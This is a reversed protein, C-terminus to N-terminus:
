QKSLEKIMIPCEIANNPYSCVLECNICRLKVQGFGVAHYIEKSLIKQRKRRPVRSLRLLLKKLKTSDVVPYCHFISHETLPIVLGAFDEKQQKSLQSIRAKRINELDKALVECSKIAQLHLAALENINKDLLKKMVCKRSDGYHTCVGDKRLDVCMPKFGIRFLKKTLGKIDLILATAGEYLSKFDIKAYCRLKLHKAEDWGFITLSGEMEVPPPDKHYAVCAFTTYSPNASIVPLGFHIQDIPATQAFYADHTNPYDFFSKLVKSLEQESSFDQVQRLLFAKLDHITVPKDPGRVKYGVYKGFEKPKFLVCLKVNRRRPHWAFLVDEHEERGTLHQLFRIEYGEERVRTVWQEAIYGAKKKACVRAAESLFRPAVYFHKRQGTRVKKPKSIIARKKESSFERIVKSLTAKSMKYTQPGVGEARKMKEWIKNFGIGPNTLIISLIEEEREDLPTM